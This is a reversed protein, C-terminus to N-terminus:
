FGLDTATIDLLSALYYSLGLVVLIAAVGMIVRIAFYSVSEGKEGMENYANIMSGIASIVVWAVLAIIVVAAILKFIIKILSLPDTTNSVTEGGVSFSSPLKAFVDVSILLVTVIIILLLWVNQPKLNLSSLM